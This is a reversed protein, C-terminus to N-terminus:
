RETCVNSTHISTINNDFLPLFSNVRQKTRTHSERKGEGDEKEEGFLPHFFCSVPSLFRPVQSPLSIKKTHLMFLICSSSSFNRKKRLFLSFYFCVSLLLLMRPSPSRDSRIIIVITVKTIIKKQQESARENTRWYTQTATLTKTLPSSLCTHVAYPNSDRDRELEM